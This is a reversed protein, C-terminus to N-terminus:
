PRPPTRDPVTRQEAAPPPRRDRPIQNNRRLDQGRRRAQQLFRQRLWLLRARELPAMFESLRRQEDVNIEAEQVQTRLVEDLLQAVREQDVKDGRAVEALDGFLSRRRAALAQREERSRQLMSRLREARSEDLHLAQAVRDSFRDTLEAANAGQGAEQALARGAEVPLGGLVLFAALVRFAVCRFRIV